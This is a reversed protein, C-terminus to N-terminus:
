ISLFVIIRDIMLNFQHIFNNFIFIPFYKQIKIRRWVLIGTKMYKSFFANCIKGIKIKNIQKELVYKLFSICNWRRISIRMEDILVFSTVISKAQSTNQIWLDNLCALYIYSNTFKDSFMTFLTERSVRIHILLM